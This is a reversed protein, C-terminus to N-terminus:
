SRWIIRRGLGESYYAVKAQDGLLTQIQRALDIGHQGLANVRDPTREVEGTILLSYRKVWEHLREALDDTIGLDTPRAADDYEDRVGRGEYDAEVILYRM